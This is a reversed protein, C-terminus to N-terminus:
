QVNDLFARCWLEISLLAFITYSADRKGSYNLEVLRRVRQPCFLGRRKLSEDSLVDGIIERLEGAVWKRLPAGFGTKKRYIIRKSLKDEMAKKLVWKGTSGRQKYRVPIGAAFNVLDLDLFPVRVEVGAAMSMKDTYLLNHDALFYRQELLLMQEISAGGPWVEELFRVMPDTAADAELAAHVHDSYLEFLEAERYWL